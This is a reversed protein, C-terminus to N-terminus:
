RSLRQTQGNSDENLVALRTKITRAPVGAVIDFPKIDRNVVSGAGVIAGKGITVGDIIVCNAAIWVDDGITIGRSSTGQDIIPIDLRAFEHRAPIIVTHAAIAVDCGIRVGTRSGYVISYANITSRDGIVIQGAQSDIIAGDHVTVNRGLAVAGSAVIRCQDLRCGRGLRVRFPYRIDAKPSVLARWRVALVAATLFRPLPRARARLWIREWLWRLYMLGTVARDHGEAGPSLARNISRDVTNRM